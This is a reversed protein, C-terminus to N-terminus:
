MSVAESEYLLVSELWLSELWFRGSRQQSNASNILALDSTQMDVTM